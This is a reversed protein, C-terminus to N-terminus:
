SGCTVRNAPRGEHWRLDALPQGDEATQPERRPWALLLGGFFFVFNIKTAAQALVVVSMAVLLAAAVAGSEGSRMLLRPWVHWVITMCLGAFLALGLLGQEAWVKLPLPLLGGAVHTLQGIGLGSGNPASMLEPLYLALAREREIRSKPAKAGSVALKRVTGKLRGRVPASMSLM